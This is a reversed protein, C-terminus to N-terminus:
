VDGRTRSLLWEAHELDTPITVKINPAGTPVLRVTGGVAEVLSACDTAAALREEAEARDFADRLVAAPFGQPTQAAWLGAREVTDAVCLEGDQRKLTDSVPAAAIAGDAGDIGALVADILEATILPRAADHVLVFEADDSLADLGNCVSEARSPGGAVVIAGQAVAGLAMETDRRHGSPVVVVLEDVAESEAFADISWALMPRGGLPLLAKPMGAGMRVGAGAALLIASASM